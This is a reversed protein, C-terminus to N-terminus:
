VILWNCCRFQGSCANTWSWRRSYIVYLPCDQLWQPCPRLCRCKESDKSTTKSKLNKTKTKVTLYLLYKLGDFNGPCLLLEWHVVM